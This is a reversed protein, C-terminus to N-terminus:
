HSHISQFPYFDLSDCAVFYGIQALIINLGVSKMLSSKGASNLGYLLIGIEDKGIQIDHPVYETFIIKEIIPHRLKKADIFSNEYDSIIPKHYNNKISCLCGSNIFCRLVNFCTYM